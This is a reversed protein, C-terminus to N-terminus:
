FPIYKEQNLFLDHDDKVNQNQQIQHHHFFQNKLQINPFIANHALYYIQHFFLIREIAIYHYNSVDIKHKAHNVNLLFGM